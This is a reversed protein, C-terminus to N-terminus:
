LEPEQERGNGSQGPERDTTAETGTASGTTADDGAATDKGVTGEPLARVAADLKALAARATKQDAASRIGIAVHDTAAVTSYTSLFEDVIFTTGDDAGRKTGYQSLGEVIQVVKAAAADGSSTAVVFMELDGEGKAVWVGGLGEVSFANSALYSIESPAIGLGDVFLVSSWSRRAGELSTMLRSRVHELASAMTEHEASGIARAYHQGKILFLANRSRYYQAGQEDSVNAGDPQEASFAAVAGQPSGMDYLELDIVRDADGTLTSAYLAVFGKSLFFDARGNIKEYLNDKNFSSVGQDSWGSPALDAPVPGRQTEQPPSKGGALPGNSYLDAPPTKGRWWVWTAIAVLVLFVAFGWRVEALSYTRRFHKFGDQVLLRDRDYPAM